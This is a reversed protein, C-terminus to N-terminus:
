EAASSRTRASSAVVVLGPEEPRHPTVRFRHKPHGAHSRRSRKVTRNRTGSTRCRCSFAPHDLGGQSHGILCIRSSSRLDSDERLWTRLRDAVDKFSPIRRLPNWQAYPSSYSFTKLHFAAEIMPDKQLCHLLHSWSDASGFIGHIFVAAAQKKGGLPRPNTSNMANECLGHVFRSIPVWCTRAFCSYTPV